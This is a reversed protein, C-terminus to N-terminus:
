TAGQRRRRIPHSGRITGRRSWRLWERLKEARPACWRKASRDKSPRIVTAWMYEDVLKVLTVCQPHPHGIRQAILRPRIGFHAANETLCTLQRKVWRMYEVYGAGDDTVGRDARIAEDWPPFVAPNIAFLTKATAAAGFHEGGVVKLRDYLKAVHRFRKEDVHLLGTRFSRLSSANRKNKGWTHLRESLRKKDTLRCRWRNLLKILRERHEEDSLSFAGTRNRRFDWYASDHNSRVDFDHCAWALSYLRIADASDTAAARDDIPAHTTM